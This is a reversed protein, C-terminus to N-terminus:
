NAINERSKNHRTAMKRVEKGKITFIKKNDVKVDFSINNFKFSNWNLNVGRPVLYSGNPGIIDLVKIKSGKELLLTTDKNIKFIKNNIKMVITPIQQTTEINEILSEMSPEIELGYYDFFYKLMLLHTRIREKLDMNKSSEIAFSKINQRLGWDSLMFTDRNKEIPNSFTTTNKIAIKYNLHKNVKEQVFKATKELNFNKYKKEDIVISNGWANKSNKAFGYGEHLSILVDPHFDIITKKILEIYKKDKDNKDINNFKKNM